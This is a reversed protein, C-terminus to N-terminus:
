GTWEKVARTAEAVTRCSGSALVVGDRDMVRWVIWGDEWAIETRM